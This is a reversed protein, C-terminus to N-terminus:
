CTALHLSTSNSTTWWAVLSSCTTASRLRRHSATLPPVPRIINPRGASKLCQLVQLATAAAAATSRINVKIWPGVWQGHQWWVRHQTHAQSSLLGVLLQLRWTNSRMGRGPTGRGVMQESTADTFDYDWSALASRGYFCAAPSHPSTGTSARRRSLSGLPALPSNCSRQWTAQLACAHMAAHRQVAAHQMPSLDAACVAARRMAHMCSTVTPLSTCSFCCAM